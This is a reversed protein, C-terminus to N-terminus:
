HVYEKYAKKVASEMGKKIVFQKVVNKTVAKAVGGAASGIGRSFYAAYVGDAVLGRAFNLYMKNAMHTFSADRRLVEMNYRAAMAVETVAKNKIDLPSLFAAVREPISVEGDMNGDRYDYFSAVVAAEGNIFGIAGIEKNLSKIIVWDIEDNAM